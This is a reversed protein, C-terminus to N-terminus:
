KKRRRLLVTGGLGILLMSVPEPVYVVTYGAVMDDYNVVPTVTGDNGTIKGDTIFQGIADRWDGIIHMQGDEIDINGTEYISIATGNGANDNSGPAWPFVLLGDDLNYQGTGGGWGVYLRHAYITGGSQNVTGDGGGHASLMLDWRANIVGDEMNLVGHCNPNSGDGFGIVIWGTGGYTATGQTGAELVGGTMTVTATGDGSDGINIGMAGPYTQNVTADIIPGPIGVDIGAVEAWYDPVIPMGGPDMWNSANSWLQNGGANTWEVKATASGAVICLIAAVCVFKRLDM